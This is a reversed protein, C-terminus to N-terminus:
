RADLPRWAISPRRDHNYLWFTYYAVALSRARSGGARRDVFSMLPLGARGREAAVYKMLQHRYVEVDAPAANEDAQIVIVTGQRAAREASTIEAVARAVAHQDSPLSRAYPVPLCVLGDSAALTREDELDYFVVDYALEDLEVWSLRARRLHTLLTATPSSRWSPLRRRRPPPDVLRRRARALAEDDDHRGIPNEPLSSAPVLWHRLFDDLPQNPMTHEARMFEWFTGSRLIERRSNVVVVQHDAALNSKWYALALDRMGRTIAQDVTGHADNMVSSRLRVNTGVVECVLRAVVRDRYVDLAHYKAAHDGHVWVILQIAMAAGVQDIIGSVAAAVQELSEGHAVFMGVTMLPKSENLSSVPRDFRLERASDAIHDLDLRQAALYQQVIKTNDVGRSRIPRYATSAGDIYSETPRPVVVDAPPEPARDASPVLLERRCEYAYRGAFGSADLMEALSAAPRVTTWEANWRNLDRMWAQVWSALESAQLGRHGRGGVLRGQALALAKLVRRRTRLRLTTRRVRDQTDRIFTLRSNIEREWFQQDALESIATTLAALSQHRQIEPGVSIALRMLGEGLIDGVEESVARQVNKFPDYAQQEITGACVVNGEAFLCHVLLFLWDENYIHPFLASVRGDTKVALAGSGIFSDLPGNVLRGAHVAVSNDPFSRASFGVVSVGDDDLLDMAKRVQGSTIAVDDDLFFVSRWNLQRALQLGFNRKQSTDRASSHSIVHYTTEFDQDEHDYPFPGDVAIWNAGQVARALRGVEDKRAKGSCLFIVVNSADEAAMRLIRLINAHNKRVDRGAPVIIPCVAQTRPNLRVPPIYEAEDRTLVRLNEGTNILRGSPYPAKELRFLNEVRM